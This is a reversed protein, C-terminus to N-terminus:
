QGLLNTKSCELVELCMRSNHYPCKWFGAKDDSRNISGEGLVSWFWEGNEHDILHEKIYQWTKEAKPLASLDHHYTYLWILGVVCEAQVWWHRDEDLIGNEHREYIMSGDPMYGELAAHAIQYCHDKVRQLRKTDNTVIAAELLLWSAEIDHGYSYSGETKKWDNNFFLGLHHTQQSEIKELFLDLLNGIRERLEKDPWVRYLNTYSELIHLHTNMTKPDNRDKNSLRMDDIPQWDRETAEIYGNRISDFAHQEIANYLKIAHKLADSDGTARHFESLGYIAFGLAYFQKHMNIPTGDAAIEWYIGGYKPDQFYRLLWEKACNATELYDSDGFVRYAAAFSWLIRGYLIAGRPAEPDIIGTGSIRGYFGGREDRMRHSWFPLIHNRLHQTMEAALRELQEMTNYIPQREANMSNLFLM